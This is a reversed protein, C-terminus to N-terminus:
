FAELNARCASYEPLPGPAMDGRGENKREKNGVSLFPDNLLAARKLQLVCGQFAGRSIPFLGTMSVSARLPGPKIRRTPKRKMIQYVVLYLPLCPVLAGSLQSPHFSFIMSGLEQFLHWLLASLHLLVTQLKAVGARHATHLM